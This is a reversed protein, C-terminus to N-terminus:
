RKLAAIAESVSMVYVSGRYNPRFSNRSGTIAIRGAGDFSLNTLYLVPLDLRGLYDGSPDFALIRGQGYECLWLRGEPDIEMGDPGSELYNQRRPLPLADLEILVEPKELGGDPRVPFALVRRALHESVLVRNRAADFLIGNAYALGSALRRIVGSDSIHLVAGRKPAGAYFRGADTFYAGGAGDDTADNPDDLSSRTEDREYLKLARGAADVEVMAGEIHCLILFRDRRFPVIATPGCGDRAFFPTAKEGDWVSVRHAGMEAFYLKGDKWLPGEPYRAGRAIDQRAAAPAALLVAFALCLALRSM